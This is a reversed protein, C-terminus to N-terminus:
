DAYYAGEQGGSRLWASQLLNNDSTDHYVYHGVFYQANKNVLSTAPLVVGAGVRKEVKIAIKRCGCAV